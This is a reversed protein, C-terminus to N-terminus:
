VAKSRNQKKMEKLKEKEIENDIFRSFLVFARTQDYLGGDCPLLGKDYMSYAEYAIEIIDKDILNIPCERLIRKGVRVTFDEQYGKSGKKNNGLLACNRYKDLGKSKCVECDWTDSGQTFKSLEYSDLLAQYTDEFVESEEIIKVAIKEILNYPLESISITETLTEIEVEAEQLTKYYGLKTMQQKPFQNLYELQNYSLIKYEIYMITDADTETSTRNQSLVSDIVTEADSEASNLNQNPSRSMVSETSTLNQNPSRSMVSETDSEASNFSLTFHRKIRNIFIKDKM